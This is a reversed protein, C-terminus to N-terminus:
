NHICPKLFIELLRQSYDITTFRLGIFNRYEGTNGHEINALVVIPVPISRDADVKIAAFASPGADKDRPGLAGFLLCFTPRRYALVNMSRPSTKSRCGSCPGKAPQSTGFRMQEESMQPLVAIVLTHGKQLGLGNAALSDFDKAFHQRRAVTSHPELFQDFGCELRWIRVLGAFQSVRFPGVTSVFGGDAPLRMGEEVDSGGSVRATPAHDIAEECQMHVKFVVTSERLWEDGKPDLHVVQKRKGDPTIELEHPESGGLLRLVLHITAGKAIEYDSLKRTDDLLIHKGGPPVYLMRQQSVPIGDRERVRRKLCEFTDDRNTKFVLERPIFARVVISYEDSEVPEPPAQVYPTVEFQINLISPKASDPRLIPLTFQQVNGEIDAHGDLWLQETVVIYDQLSTPGKAHNAGPRARTSEVEAAPEGTISNIGDVYIKVLYAYPKKVAFQVWGADSVIFAHYKPYMPLLLGGTIQMDAFIQAAHAAVYSFPIAGLDPPSFDNGHDDPLRLTRKFSIILSEGVCVPDNRELTCNTPGSM